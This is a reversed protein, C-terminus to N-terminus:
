DARLEALTEEISRVVASRETMWAEESPGGAPRDNLEQRLAELETELGRKEQTLQRLRQAVGSVRDELLRINKMEDRSKLRDPPEIDGKGRERPEAV